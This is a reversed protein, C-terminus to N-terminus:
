FFPLVSSFLILLQTPLLSLPLSPPLYPCLSLCLIFSVPLSSFFLSLSIRTIMTRQVGTNLGHRFGDM